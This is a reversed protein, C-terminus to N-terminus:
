ARRSNRRRPKLRRASSLRRCAPSIRTLLPRRKMRSSSPLTGATQTVRVEPYAVQRANWEVLLQQREPDSLWPLAALRQQPDAVIGELLIRLHEALREITEADFLDANYEFKGSLGRDTEVLYLTLDFKSAEVDLDLPTLILNPLELTQRPTNQLVLMVQFLPSRTLQRELQLAEMLKEFPVDQHAYAGLCVEKVRKLLELFTPNGSLDARLALTNIFFGIIGELEARNRNAIPSGVIIDPQGTYRYLLTQFAALLTMFVSAGTQQSLAQLKRQLDAALMFVYTGGRETQRAPRPRDTPLELVTTAGALQQRWYAVQQELTEGQLHRRQWHAFDAYQLLPEPLPSVKGASYAPYLQGFERVLIGVSWVDCIIHHLILVVLHVSENLVLLKVRLLPGRALDFPKRLAARALELAQAERDAEPLVRLDAVELRVPAPPDIVQVPTEGATPFRTRLAEHRRVIESLSRELADRDLRGSLRFACAVNYTASGPEWQDLFWLRQQAFSLPFSDGAGPRPLPPISDARPAPQKPKLSRTLLELREPSLGALNKLVLEARTDTERRLPPENKPQPVVYNQIVGEAVRREIWVCATTAADRERLRDAFERCQKQVTLSTTLRQLAEAIAGAEWRPPPLFRGVGLRQLRAANDPRDVGVALVVQPVGAALAQAATGIGGHHIVASLHPMVSGFPLAEFWNMGDLFGNLIEPHRTVVLSPLGLQRCAAVSATFFEPGVFVGTGGTILVPRVDNALLAQAAAPIEQLTGPDVLFGVPVIGPMENTESAAFWNPWLALGGVPYRWHNDWDDVPVLGLQVRVRNVEDGITSHLVARLMPLTGLQLPSFFVPLHLRQLHEAALEAALSATHNAILVTDRPGACAQIKAVHEPAAPILYQQILAVMGQATNPEFPAVPSSRRDGPQDLAVFNLGARGARDAYSGHTLLTVAHGRAKLANGLLIFPRVDGDTGLTLLLLNAM